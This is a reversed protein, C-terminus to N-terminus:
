QQRVTYGVAFYISSILAAAAIAYGVALSATALGRGRENRLKIQNLAVHGAGVAFAALVAVGALVTGVAALGALAVAAIALRNYRTDHLTHNEAM